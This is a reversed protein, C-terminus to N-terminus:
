RVGGTGHESVEQVVSVVPGKKHGPATMRGIRKPAYMKNGCDPCKFVRVSYKRERM